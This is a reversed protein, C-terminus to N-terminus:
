DGCWFRTNRRVAPWAASQLAEGSGEACLETQLFALLKKWSPLFEKEYSAVAEDRLKKQQEASFNGPFKRFALLLPTTASDQAVQATVQKVVLDVVVTPQMLGSAISERLIEINQDVYAPVGHLRGLLRRYDQETRAPMRDIALYIRTHLGFLQGVRLLHTELDEADLQTQLDYKLLRVSVSDAEPLGEVSIKKLEALTEEAHKKRLERGAKSWDDWKDSNEYHGTNTAFEPEDVLKTEFYNRFLAQVDQPVAMGPQASSFKRVRDDTSPASIGAAVLSLCVMLAVGIRGIRFTM